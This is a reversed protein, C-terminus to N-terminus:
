VMMLTESGASRGLYQLKGSSGLTLTGLADISKQPAHDEDSPVIDRANISESGFKVKILEDSLLPHRQDTVSSQLIALADELQRIRNSMEYIKEHLQETDALIFRTGQGGTLIGLPCISECGRRFCSGCPVNKDCRLKLRRCEACALEGRLRKQEIDKIEEETLKKTTRRPSIVKTNDVPM